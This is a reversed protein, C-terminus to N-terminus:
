HFLKVMTVAEEKVYEEYGDAFRLTIKTYDRQHFHLQVLGVRGHYPSRPENLRARQGVFLRSREPGAHASTRKLIELCPPEYWLSHPSNHFRVRVGNTTGM